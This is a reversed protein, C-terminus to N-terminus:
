TLSDFTPRTCGPEISCQSAIVMRDTKAVVTSADVEDDEQVLVEGHIPLVRKKRIITKETVRLGPTYAHAM